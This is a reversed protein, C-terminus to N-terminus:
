HMVSTKGKGSKGHDWGAGDIDAPGHIHFVIKCNKVGMSTETWRVEASDDADVSVDSIFKADCRVYSAMSGVREGLWAPQNSASIM